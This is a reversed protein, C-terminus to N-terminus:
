GFDSIATLLLDFTGRGTNARIKNSSISCIKYYLFLHFNLDETSYIHTYYIVVAYAATDVTTPEAFNLM